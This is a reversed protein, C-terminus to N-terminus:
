AAVEEAEQIERQHDWTSLWFAAREYDNAKLAEEYCRYSYEALDNDDPATM